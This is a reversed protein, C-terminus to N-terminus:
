CGPSLSCATIAVSRALLLALLTAAVALRRGHRRAFGRLWAAQRAYARPSAEEEAWSSLLVERPARGRAAFRM